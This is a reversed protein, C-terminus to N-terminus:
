AVEINIRNGRGTNIGHEQKVQAEYAQTKRTSRNMRHRHQDQAWTSGTGMNIGHRHIDWARTSGIGTKIGHGQIDQARVRKDRAQVHKDWAWTFGM